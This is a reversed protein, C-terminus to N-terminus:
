EITDIHVGELKSRVFGHLKAPGQVPQQEADSMGIGRVAGDVHVFDVDTITEVADPKAALEAGFESNNEGRTGTLFWRMAM